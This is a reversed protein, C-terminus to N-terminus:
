ARKDILIDPIHCGTDKDKVGLDSVISKFIPDESVQNQEHGPSFFFCPEKEPSSFLGTSDFITPIGNLDGRSTSVYGSPNEFHFDAGQSDRPLDKVFGEKGQRGELEDIAKLTTFQNPLPPSISPPLNVATEGLQAPTERM